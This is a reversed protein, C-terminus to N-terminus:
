LASPCLTRENNSPAACNHHFKASKRNTLIQLHKHPLPYFNKFFDAANNFIAASKISFTRNPATFPSAKQQCEPELPCVPTAEPHIPRFGQM